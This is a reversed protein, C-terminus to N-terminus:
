QRPLSVRIVGRLDGEAYGTARDAPYREALLQLVAPDIQEPAGHCGTCFQQVVLPRYFRIENSGAAQVFSPPLVGTTTRVSDFWALAAAELTDPANKPNRVRTTTRRVVTGAPEAAVLSDTLALATRSCFDVAGAAGGSALEAQLRQVLGQAVATALRGGQELAAATDAASLVMPTTEEIEPATRACGAVIALALVIGARKM